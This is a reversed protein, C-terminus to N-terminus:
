WCPSLVWAAVWMILIVLSALAAVATGAAALFRRTELPGQGDGDPTASVGSQRSWDRHVLWTMCVTALLCVLAVLHIGVRTQVSCSPTVLSFMASQCALAVLPAVILAAWAHM